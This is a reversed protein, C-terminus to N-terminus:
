AMTVSSRMSGSSGLHSPPPRWWRRAVPMMIPIDIPTVRESAASSQPISTTPMVIHMTKQAPDPDSARYPPEAAAKSCDRMMPPVLAMAGGAECLRARGGGEGAERVVTVTRVLDVAVFVEVGVLPACM